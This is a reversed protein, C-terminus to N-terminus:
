RHNSSCVSCLPVAKKYIAQCRSRIGDQPIPFGKKRPFNMPFSMPHSASSPKARFPM